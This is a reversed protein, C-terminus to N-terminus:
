PFRVHLQEECLPPCKFYVIVFEVYKEFVPKNNTKRRLKRIYVVSYLRENQYVICTICNGTKSPQPINGYHYSQTVPELSLLSSQRYQVRFVRISNFDRNKMWLRISISRRALIEYRWLVISLYRVAQQLKCLHYCSSWCVSAVHESLSLRSDTVLGLDRDSQQICITSALFPVGTIDLQASSCAVAPFGAM